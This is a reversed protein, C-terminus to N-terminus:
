PTILAQDLIMSTRMYYNDDLAVPGVGCTGHSAILEMWAFGPSRTFATIDVAFVTAQGDSKGLALTCAGGCRSPPIQTRFAPWRRSDLNPILAGIHSNPSMFRAFEVPIM